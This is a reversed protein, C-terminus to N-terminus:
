EHSKREADAASLTRIMAETAQCGDHVTALPSGQMTGTRLCREWEAYVRAFPKNSGLPEVSHGNETVIQLVGGLEDPSDKQSSIKLFPTDAQWSAMGRDGIIEHQMFWTRDRSAHTYIFSVEIQALAGSTMRAQLLLHGPYRFQPETWQGMAALHAFESGSFYRALDLYHVGCDMCGGGNRLFEARRLGLPGTLGHASWNYAFRLVQLRGLDGADLAAKMRITPEDIRYEFNLGFLLGKQTALQRLEEAEAITEVFPKECFVHKGSEMARHAIEYHTPLPTTLSVAAIDERALLDNYEAYSDVAYRDEAEKRGAESLDAVAILKLGDSEAIAPLHGYRAVTGCGILGVGIKKHTMM